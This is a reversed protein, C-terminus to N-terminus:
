FAQGISFHIRLRRKEPEGNVLLNDIPTLQYGLDIRAPGIPTMYRLGPGVAYRMDGLDIDWPNAWVNGYDVFAVAGLKGWLPVRLETSGEVMTHGGIPLGSGSLPSVELRGWGRISSSGGLFFRRYFPVDTAVDGAPDIGGIRIRNAFVASSGLSLYHRGELTVSLYNFNGWLWRGAQEVHASVSYGRRADLLNNVPETIITPM